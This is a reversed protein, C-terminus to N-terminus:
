AAWLHRLDVGLEEAPLYWGVARESPDFYVIAESGAVAHEGVSEPMPLELRRGDRLKLAVEDDHPTRVVTAGVASAATLRARPAGYLEIYRFAAETRNSAPLKQLIRSVHSKVTNESIVFHAAIESNNAGTALLELVQLERRSLQESVQGIEPRQRLVPLSVSHRPHVAKAGAAAAAGFVLACGLYGTPGLSLGQLSVLVAFVVAIVAAAIGAVVGLDRGVIWIPFALLYVLGQSPDTLVLLGVVGASLAIVAMGDRHTMGEAPAFGQRVVMRTEQAQVM